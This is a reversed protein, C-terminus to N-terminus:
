SNITKIYINCNVVTNMDMSLLNKHKNQTWFCSLLFIFIVKTIDQLVLDIEDKNPVNILTTYECGAM